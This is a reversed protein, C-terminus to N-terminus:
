ADGAKDVLELLEISTLLISDTPSQEQQQEVQQEQAPTLPPALTNEATTTETAAEPIAQGFAPKIVISKLEFSPYLILGTLM